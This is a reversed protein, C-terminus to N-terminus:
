SDDEEEDEEATKLWEIFKSAKARLEAGLVKGITVSTEPASDYWCLFFDESYLDNEYLAHLFPTAYALLKGGDVSTLFEEIAVFLVARNAPEPAATTLLKTRAKIQEPFTKPKSVDFLGELLIRYKQTDTSSRALAIRRLEALIQTDSKPELLFQKLIEVGDALTKKNDKSDKAEKADKVEKKEAIDKAEKAEKEKIQVGMLRMEELKRELQAEKSTDTDWVVDDEDDVDKTTKLAQISAAALAANNALHTQKQADEKNGDDKEVDDVEEENKRDKGKRKGEKGEKSVKGFSTPPNKLIYTTLKHALSM